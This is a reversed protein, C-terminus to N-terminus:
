KPQRPQLTTMASTGGTLLRASLFIPSLLAIILPFTSKTTALQYIM